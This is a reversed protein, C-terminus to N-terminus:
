NIQVERNHTGLDLMYREHYLYATAVYPCMGLIRIYEM